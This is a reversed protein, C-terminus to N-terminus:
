CVFAAMFPPTEVWLNQHVFSAGFSKQLNQNRTESLTTFLIRVFSANHTKVQVDFRDAPILRRVIRVFRRTKKHLGSAAESNQLIRM